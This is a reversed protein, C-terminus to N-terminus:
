AHGATKMRRVGLESVNEGWVFVLVWGMGSVWSQGKDLFKGGLAIHAKPFKDLESCSRQDSEKGETKVGFCYGLEM